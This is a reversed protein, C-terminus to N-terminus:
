QASSGTLQRTTSPMRRPRPPRHGAPAPTRPPTAAVTRHAAATAAGPQLAVTPPCAEGAAPTSYRAGPGDDAGADGGGAEDAGREAAGDVGAPGGPVGGGPVEEGPE